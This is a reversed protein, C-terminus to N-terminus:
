VLKTEGVFVISYEFIIGLTKGAHKLGSNFRVQFHPLVTAGKHQVHVLATDDGLPFERLLWSPTTTTTSLLRKSKAQTDKNDNDEEKKETEPKQAIEAGTQTKNNAADEDTSVANAATRQIRWEEDQTKHDLVATLRSSVPPM